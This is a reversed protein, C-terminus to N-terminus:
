IKGALDMKKGRPWSKIRAERKLAESRTSFKESHIMKEVGRSSTYHGGKRDKHEKLRRELDTTIGTYITQDSCLLLYVFYMVIIITFSRDNLLVFFIM